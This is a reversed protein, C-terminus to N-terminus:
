KALQPRALDLARKFWASFAEPEREYWRDIEELTLWQLAEAEEPNLEIQGKLEEPIDYVFVRDIEHESLGEFPAYYTFKGMYHFPESGGSEGIVTEPVTLGLEEKLRTTLVDEMTEDKRPHSCCANSWKGGSHYKRMARRQILIKGTTRDQIFISFARHLLEKVHTEMKEGYGIMEDNENVLILLDNM